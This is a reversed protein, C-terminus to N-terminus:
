SLQTSLPLLKTHLLDRDIIVRYISIDLNVRIIPIAFIRVPYFVSLRGIAAVITCKTLRIVVVVIRCIQKHILDYIM